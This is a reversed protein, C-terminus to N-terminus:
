IHQIKILYVSGIQGCQHSAFVRVLTGCIAAPFTLVLLSSIVYVVLLSLNRKVEVIERLIKDFDKRGRADISAGLSWM